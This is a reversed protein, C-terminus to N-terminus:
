GAGRARSEDLLEVLQVDGLGLSLRLKFGGDAGHFGGIAHLGFRGVDEVDALFAFGGDFHIAFAGGGAAAEM